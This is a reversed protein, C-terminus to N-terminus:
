GRALARRGGRTAEPSACSFCRYESIFEGSGALVRHEAWEGHALEDRCSACRQLSRLTVTKTRLVKLAPAQEAEWAECEEAAVAELDYDPLEMAERNCSRGPCLPPGSEHLWTRTVRATYACTGCQVKLLRSRM